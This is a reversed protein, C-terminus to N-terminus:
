IKPGYTALESCNYKKFNKNFMKTLKTLQLDYANKDNWTNRPNLIISDVNPCKTPISLNLIPLSTYDEQQLQNSHIADIIARTYKLKCRYGTGYPGALWGTNILWASANYKEIKEALLEAYKIPHWVLFAEGFCASFTAEPEKIGDETGAIKSTYGSMFYYMVQKNSLKSVPPLVGFADCTLLIINSPHNGVCPIKANNIYHIPFSARTNETITSDAYNVVRKEDYIVNELLTGFKIANWIDPENDESLNICKAYCGGEINFIGYSTWCHEDDGILLRKSDASLTTKGTGSLGFFISTTGDNISENASSHLSLINKLPMLYHMVTFIGKKMEGAYQTGLIVIEKRTFDFDISTSSTMYGTYRNCPFTGANYITYGPEGYDKLEEDTPRILMNYMFLCHYARESIVRVKIRHKTDWGAFGDFIFIKDLNNLYCIATERNILFTESDMKINPSDKDWWIDKTLSDYVVRKDKPSRGTKIGSRASLAGESTINTGREQLAYEYLESPSPNYIVDLIKLGCDSTQNGTNDYLENTRPFRLSPGTKRYSSALSSSISKLTKM